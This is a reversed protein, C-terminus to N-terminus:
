TVAGSPHAAKGDTPRADGGRSGSDYRGCEGLRVM